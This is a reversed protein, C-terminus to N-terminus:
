KPMPLYYHVLMIMIGAFSGESENSMREACIHHDAQRSSCMTARASVAGKWATLLATMM